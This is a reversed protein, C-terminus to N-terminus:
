NRKLFNRAGKEIILDAIEKKENKSNIIREDITNAIYMNTYRCVSKQGIRHIRGSAQDYADPSWTLEYFIMHQQKAKSGIKFLEIGFGGSEIQGVFVNINKSKQFGNWKEYKKKGTDAGYMTIYKIGINELASKILQITYRFRCWVIVSEEADLIIEIQEILADLKPTAKLTIEKGDSDKIFGATLQQLKLLKTLINNIKLRSTGKTTEIEIAEIEKIVKREVARYTEELNGIPVKIDQYIREPLDLADEKKIRICSSYIISQFQPIKDKRLIWKNWAGLKIKKFFTSRFRFYNTSFSRGGDLVRFQSWVDLPRNAIPTATLILKYRARDALIIAAKTRNAEGNKIYRASEDFIIADFELDILERIFLHLAEYNIIYFTYERHKLKELREKRNAYLVISSLESFKAIEKEWNYLISTPGVIL